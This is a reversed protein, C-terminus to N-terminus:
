GATIRAFAGTASPVDPLNFNITQNTTVNSINTGAGTPVVDALFDPVGVNLRGFSIANQAEQLGGAIQAFVGPDIGASRLTDAIGGVFGVLSGIIDKLGQEILGILANIVAEIPKVIVNFAVLGIGALVNKIGEPLSAFFAIIGDIINRVFGLVIAAPTGETNPDFVAAFFATVDEVVPGLFTNINAGIQGITYPISGEREPNILSDIFDKAVFLPTGEREPDFTMAFFATLNAITRDIQTNINGGVAGILNPISTPNETGFLNEVSTKLINAVSGEVDPNFIDTLGSFKDAFKAGIDVGGIEGLIGGLTQANQGLLDLQSTDIQGEFAAILGQQAEIVADNGSILDLAGEGVGPLPIGVSEGAVAPLASEGTGAKPKKDTAIRGGGAAKQATKQIVTFMSKRINLLARERGQQATALALQIQANDVIGQQTSLFGQVAERQRDLTRITDAAREDGRGLAELATGIQRDIAELAAQAPSAIAEFDARVIDLRQQFPLLAADLQALRATVQRLSLAGISGLADSVQQAVREVPELSVGSIGQLWATMLNEGGKDITSLPGRKPPSFGMLFDRIFTAISIVAPFILQNATAIIANAFSGFVAAAGEFFRKPLEGFNFGLDIGVAEQIFSVVRQIAGQILAGVGQIVQNITRLALTIYPILGAIFDVIPQITDIVSNVANALPAILANLVETILPGLAKALQEFLGAVRNVIDLVVEFAPQVAVALTDLTNTITANLRAIKEAATEQSNGLTDIAVQGAELTAQLLAIQQEQATLETVSKGISDAYKQNAEGVKLVLGTNDILLPSSRKIGTILSQFLFDVNQGTARAQVRAIELLKPLSEGISKGVEGTAGALATNALRILELDNVTGAAAARLDKLLVGSTIGVSATLRDFSDTLGRINAGRLGLSVFAAILATIGAVAVTASLGVSSVAAAVKDLAGAAAQGQPGFRSLTSSVQGLIKKRSELAKDLANSDKAAKKASDGIKNQAQEVSAADRLFKQANEIVARLGVTELAM